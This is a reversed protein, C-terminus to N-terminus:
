ARKSPPSPATASDLEDDTDWDEDGRTTAGKGPNGVRTATMGGSGETASPLAALALEVDDVTVDLPSSSRGTQSALASSGGKGRGGRTASERAASSAPPPASAGRDQYRTRTAASESGSDVSELLSRAKIQPHHLHPIV